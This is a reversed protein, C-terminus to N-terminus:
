HGDIDREQRFMNEEVEAMSSDADSGAPLSGTEVAGRPQWDTGSWNGEPVYEQPSRSVQTIEQDDFGTVPRSEVYPSSSIGQELAEQDEFSLVPRDSHNGGAQAIGIGVGAVVM